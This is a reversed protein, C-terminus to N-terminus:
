AEGESNPNTRKNWAAVAEAETPYSSLYFDCANCGYATWLSNTKLDIDVGAKAEGGCFPCPKLEADM